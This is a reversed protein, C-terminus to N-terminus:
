AKMRVHEAKVAGDPNVNPLRPSVYRTKIDTLPVGPECYIQPFYFRHSPVNIDMIM